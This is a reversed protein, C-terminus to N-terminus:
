HGRLGGDWRVLVRGDWYVLRDAATMVGMEVPGGPISIAAADGVGRVMVRMSDLFALRVAPGIFIEGGKAVPRIPYSLGRAADVSLHSLVVYRSPDEGAMRLAEKFGNRFIFAGKTEDPLNAVYV